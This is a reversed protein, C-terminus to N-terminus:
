EINTEVVRIADTSPDKSQTKRVVANQKENLDDIKASSSASKRLNSQSARRRELHYKLREEEEKKKTLEERERRQTDALIKRIRADESLRSTSNPSLLNEPTSSNSITSATAAALSSNAAELSANAHELSSNAASLSSHLKFVEQEKKELLEDKKELLEEKKELEMRHKEELAEIQKQYEEFRSEREQLIKKQERKFREIELENLDITASYEQIQSIKCQLISELEMIRHFSQESVKGKSVSLSREKKAQVPPTKDLNINPTNAPVEPHIEVEKVQVPSKKGNDEEEIQKENPPTGGTEDLSNYQNLLSKLNTMQDDFEDSIPLLDLTDKLKKGEANKVALQLRLDENQKRSIELDQKLDGVQRLLAEKEQQLNAKEDNVVRILSENVRCNKKEEALELRKQFLQEKLAEVQIELNKTYDSENEQLESQLFTLDQLLDKMRKHLVESKALGTINSGEFTKSASGNSESSASRYISNETVSRESKFLSSESKAESKSERMTKTVPSIPPTISSESALSHILLDPTTTSAGIRLRKHQDEADILVHSGPFVGYNGESEGTWWGSIHKHFVFVLNGTKLPIENPDSPVFDAEVRAKIYNDEGIEWTYQDPLESYESLSSPSKTFRRPYVPGERSPPPRSPITTAIANTTIPTSQQLPYETTSDSEKKKPRFLGRLSLQSERKQIRENDGRPSKMTEGRPSKVTTEGRPSKPDSKEGKPSKQKEKGSGM